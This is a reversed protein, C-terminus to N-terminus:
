REQIGFRGCVIVYQGDVDQLYVNVKKGEHFIPQDEVAQTIDGVTGGPTVIQLKNGPFPAGKVYTDITLDSYTFIGSRDENWRSEVKEVTGEIIYDATQAIYSQDTCEQILMGAGGSQKVVIPGGTTGGSPKSVCAVFNFPLIVLIFFTSIALFNRVNRM